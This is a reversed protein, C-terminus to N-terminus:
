VLRGEAAYLCTDWYRRSVSRIEVRDAVAAAMQGMKAALEPNEVLRKLAATFEVVHGVPILIGNVGDEILESPGTPCDYSVCPIGALMAEALANPFGEWYSSFAFVGASRLHPRLDTQTGLFKTQEIIGLERARQELVPRMPGDGCLVLIWDKAGIAAFAELLDGQGKKKHLRSVNLIIKQPQRDREKIIQTVPNFLVMVHRARTDSVIFDRAAQSQVLVAAALPYTIKRLVVRLRSLAETPSDREAVIIHQKTGFLAIVCFANYKNMFSLVFSPKREVIARRLAFITLFLDLLRPLGDNNARIGLCVHEIRPDLPYFVEEDFLTVVSVHAEPYNCWENALISAVREAGGATLTPIFLVCSTM